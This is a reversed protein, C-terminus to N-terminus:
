ENQTFNDFESFTAKNLKALAFHCARYLSPAAQQVDAQLVYDRQTLPDGSTQLFIQDSPKTSKPKWNTDSLQQPGPSNQSACWPLFHGQRTPEM